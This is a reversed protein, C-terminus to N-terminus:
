AQLFRDIAALNAPGGLLRDYCEMERALAGRVLDTRSALLLKKTASTAEIPLAAIRHAIELTHAMLDDSKTVKWVLGLEAAESADIWAGTLLLRAAQQYGIRLPLTASVASEGALGLEAFPFRFRAEESAITLDAHLPTTAGFGVAIGNVACLLPKPFGLLEEICPVPGHRRGDLPSGPQGMEAMDWGASFARGSGTMVVCSVDPDLSADVLAATVSDFMAQTMANLRHSRNLTVIRVAGDDAVEVDTSHTKTTM